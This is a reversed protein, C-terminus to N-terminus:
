SVYGVLGFGTSYERVHWNLRCKMQLELILLVETLGFGDLTVDDPRADCIGKWMYGHEDEPWAKADASM